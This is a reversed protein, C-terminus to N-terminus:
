KKEETKTDVVNGNSEVKVDSITTQKKIEGGNAIEIRYQSYGRIAKLSGILKLIIVSMFLVDIIGMYVITDGSGNLLSYITASILAVIDLATLILFVYRCKYYTQSKRTSLILTVISDALLLVVIVAFYIILGLFVEGEAAGGSLAIVLAYIIFYMYFLVIATLVTFITEVIGGAVLLSKGRKM